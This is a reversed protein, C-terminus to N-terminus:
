LDVSARMDRAEARFKNRSLIYMVVATIAVITVGIANIIVGEDPLGSYRDAGLAFLAKETLGTLCACVGLVFTLVGFAAHIPVLSARFNATGKNCILLLLFSFFGVAYQLGFLGMAVLGVWSHLSYFNNIGKKNHFDLVALFGIVICPFALAHFIAHLLKVYIRRFCRCIRYLLVSFGSFTIFGAIMLTPHLNFQKEPIDDAWGYGERYFFTWFITLASVGILLITALTIVLAYECWECAGREHEESDYSRSRQVKLKKKGELQSITAPPPPLDDMPVEENPPSPPSKDFEAIPALEPMPSVSNSDM